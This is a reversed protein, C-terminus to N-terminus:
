YMNYEYILELNGMVIVNLTYVTFMQLIKEIIEM